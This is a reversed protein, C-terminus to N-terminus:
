GRVPSTWGWDGQTPDPTADKKTPHIIQGGDDKGNWGVSYLLYGGDATRRYKPLGGTVLDHPLNDLFRPVLAELADPFQGNTLRHRELACAIRAQDVWTQGQAAKLAVRMIAPMLLGAFLNSPIALFRKTPTGGMERFYDDLEALKHPLVRRAKADAAPITCRQHLRAITTMNQYYWGSPMLRFLVVTVPSEEMELSRMIEDAGPGRRIYEMTAVTWAREARMIAGYDKLFDLSDLRHELDALQGDTWAHRALGERIGKVADGILRARVLLSILIPEDQVSDALRLLLKLDALAEAARGAELRATARLLVVNGLGRLTSLHPLRIAMPNPEAYDVAFRSKPRAAAQELEALEADFGSLAVLVDQASTQAVAPQPYNTNGRYFRQWEGLDILTGVEVPSFKPPTRKQSDKLSANVRRLRANPDVGEGEPSAPHQYREFMHAFIPAAAFNQEAPV